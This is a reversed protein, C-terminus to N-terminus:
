IKNLNTLVISLCSEAEFLGSDAAVRTKFDNILVEVNVVSSAVAPNFNLFGMGLSLGM